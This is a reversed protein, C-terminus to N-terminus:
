HHHSAYRGADSKLEVDIYTLKTDLNFAWSRL